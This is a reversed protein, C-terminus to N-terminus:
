SSVQFTNLHLRALVEEVANSWIDRIAEDSLQVLLSSKHLEETFKKLNRFTAPPMAVSIVKEQEELWIFVTVRQEMLVKDLSSAM